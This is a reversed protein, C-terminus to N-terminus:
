SSTDLWRHLSQHDRLWPIPARAILIPPISLVVGTTLRAVPVAYLLGFPIRLWDALTELATQTFSGRQALVSTLRPEFPVYSPFGHHPAVWRSEFLGTYLLWWVLTAWRFESPAAQYFSPLWAPHASEEFWQGYELHWCAADSVAWVSEIPAFVSEPTMRFFRETFPAIRSWARTPTYQKLSRRRRWGRVGNILWGSWRRARRADLNEHLYNRWLEFLSELTLHHLCAYM